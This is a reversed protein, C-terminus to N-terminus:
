KRCVRDLVAALHDALRTADHDEELFRRGTAGMKRRQTLSTSALERVAAAVAPPSEPECWIGAGASIAGHSIPSAFVIPREAALYEFLKNMSMGYRYLEPLNRVSLITADARAVPIHVDSAPIPDHFVVNSSGNSAARAILSAKSPGEGYLSLRAEPLLLMADVLAELSNAEGHAGTYILEFPGGHDRAPEAIVDALAYGNPIWTFDSDLLGYRKAYDGVGRLPSIVHDAERFLRREMRALTRAVASQRGLRGFQILTEPWLDRVEYIFPVRHRRALVLGAEAALPHVTSGIVADPSPLRRTAFGYATRLGFTLMNNVRGFGNGSYSPASVWLFTVGPGATVLRSSRRTQGLREPHSAIITSNWGHPRLGMALSYHRTGGYM